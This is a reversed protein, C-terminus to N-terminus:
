YNDVWFVKKLEIQTAEKADFQLTDGRYVISSQFSSVGHIKFDAISDTM